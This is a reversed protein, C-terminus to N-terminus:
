NSHKSTIATHVRMAVISPLGRTLLHQPFVWVFQEFFSFYGKQASPYQLGYLWYVGHLLMTAIAMNATGDDRTVPLKDLTVVMEQPALVSGKVHVFANGTSLRQPLLSFLYILKPERRYVLLSRKCSQVNILRKFLKNIELVSQICTCQEMTGVEAFINAPDCKLLWPLVYLAANMM